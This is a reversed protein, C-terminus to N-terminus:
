WFPWWVRLWFEGVGGNSLFWCIHRLWLTQVCLFNYSSFSQFLVSGASVLIDVFVVELLGQTANQVSKVVNVCSTLCRCTVMVPYWLGFHISFLHWGMKLSAGSRNGSFYYVCRRMMLRARVGVTRNRLLLNREGNCHSTSKFVIEGERKEPWQIFSTSSWDWGENWKPQTFEFPFLVKLVLAKALSPGLCPDMCSLRTIYTITTWDSFWMCSQQLTHM